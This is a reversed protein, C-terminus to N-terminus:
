SLMWHCVKNWWAGIADRAAQAMTRRTEDLSRQHSRAQEAAYRHLLTIQEDLQARLASANISGVVAAHKDLFRQVNQFEASTQLERQKM